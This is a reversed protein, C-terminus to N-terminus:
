PLYGAAWGTLDAVRGTVCGLLASATSTLTLPGVQVSGPGEARLVILLRRLEELGPSPSITGDPVEALLGALTDELPYGAAARATYYTVTGPQDLREPFVPELGIADCLEGLLGDLLDESQTSCVAAAVVQRHHDGAEALAEDALTWRLYGLIDAQGRAIEEVQHAVAATEDAAGEDRQEQDAVTRALMDRLDGLAADLRDIHDRLGDREARAVSLKIGLDSGIAFVQGSLKDELESGQTAADAAADALARRVLSDANQTVWARLTITLYAVGAGVALLVVLLVVAM